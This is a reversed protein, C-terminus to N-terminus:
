FPFLFFPMVRVMSPKREVNQDQYIYNEEPAPGQIPNPSPSSHANATPSPSRSMSRERRTSNTRLSGSRGLGMDRGNVPVNPSNYGSVSEPIVSMPSFEGVLNPHPETLMDFQSIATSISEPSSERAARSERPHYTHNQDRDRDRPHYYTNRHYTRPPIIIPEDELNRRQEPVPSFSNLEMIPPMPSLEHPPPLMIGGDASDVPIMGDPPINVPSHRTPPPLNHIITPHIQGTTTSPLPPIPPPPAPAPASPLSGSGSGSGSPVPLPNEGEESYDDDYLDDTQSGMTPTVFGSGDEGSDVSM